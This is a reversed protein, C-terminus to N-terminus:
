WNMLIHHSSQTHTDWNDLQKQLQWQITINTEVDKIGEIKGMIQEIKM